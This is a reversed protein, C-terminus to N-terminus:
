LRKSTPCQTVFEKLTTLPDTIIPNREAERHLYEMMKDFGSTDTIVSVSLRDYGERRLLNM